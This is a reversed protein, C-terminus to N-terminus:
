RSRAGIYRGRTAQMIQDTTVGHTATGKVKSLWQEYEETTTAGAKKQRVVQVVGDEYVVALEMGPKIGARDRVHKPITVQGKATMRM